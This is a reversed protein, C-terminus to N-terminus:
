KACARVSEKASREPSAAAKAPEPLAEDAAGGAGGFSCGGVDSGPADAEDGDGSIGDGDGTFSIDGDGSNGDDSSEAGGRMSPLDPKDGLACGALFLGSLLCLLARM